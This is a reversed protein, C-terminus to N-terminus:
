WPHSVKELTQLYSSKGEFGVTVELGSNFTCAIAQPMDKLWSYSWVCVDDHKNQAYVMSIAQLKSM